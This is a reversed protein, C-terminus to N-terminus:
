RVIERHHILACAIENPVFALARGGVMLMQGAAETSVVITQGVSLSLEGVLGSGVEITASAGTAVSQLTVVTVAGSAHLGGVILRGGGTAAAGVIEVMAMSPTVSLSSIESLDGSQTWATCPLVLMAAVLASHVRM